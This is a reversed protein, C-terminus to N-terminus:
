GRPDGPPFSVRATTAYARAIRSRARHRSTLTGTFGHQLHPVGSVSGPGQPTPLDASSSSMVVLVRISRLTRPRGPRGARAAPVPGPRTAAPWCTGPYLNWDTQRLHGSCQLTLARRM